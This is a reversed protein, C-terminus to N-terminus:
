AARLDKAINEIAKAIDTWAQDRDGNEQSFTIVPKGNKPLAQLKSFIPESAWLCPRVIIPIVRMGESERRKLLRPVEEDNIFRSDIFDASILLLAIDADNMATQIAEYWDEGPEILRDQWTDIIGRRKM